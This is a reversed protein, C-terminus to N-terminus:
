RKKKAKKKATKKKIAKKTKKKAKTKRRVPEDHVKIRRNKTRYVQNQYAIDGFLERAVDNYALAAEKESKYDGIFHSKGNKEIRARYLKKSKIYTIGKFKSSSSYGRKPLMRQREKM